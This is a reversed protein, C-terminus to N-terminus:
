RFRYRGGPRDVGRAPAEGAPLFRARRRTRWFVRKPGPETSAILARLDRQPFVHLAVVGGRDRLATAAIWIEQIREDSMSLCGVSACRGHIMIADGPDAEGALIRDSANPYSVTMALYYRTAATYGDITYFGEPVQADGKERKPGLRGSARCFGYTTVHVLADSPAGAAWLELVRERKFGRLLVRAPPFGVGAGAFLEKVVSLKAARAEEVRKM